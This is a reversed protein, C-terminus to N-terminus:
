EVEMQFNHVQVKELSRPQGVRSGVRGRAPLQTSTSNRHVLYLVKPPLFDEDAVEAVELSGLPGVGPGVRGRASLQISASNRHM